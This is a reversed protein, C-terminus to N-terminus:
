ARAPLFATRFYPNLTIHRTRPDPPPGALETQLHIIYHLQPAASKGSVPSPPTGHSRSNGLVRRVYDWGRGEETHMAREGYAM